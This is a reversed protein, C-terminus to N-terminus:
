TAALSASARGAVETLAAGLTVMRDRSFRVSPVAISLAAVAAGNVDRLCTGIASVGDETDQDNVAYGRRRANALHRRLSRIDVGHERDTTGYLETIVQPSLEALLARGGSTLAAPLITGRRDGVRLTQSCEVSDIFRCETSVRVSLNVSERVVACLSDLYPRLRSRLDSFHRDPALSASLQPGPVYNRNEDQVAFDRYVLMSLLRHATSRATGLETAADSVRLTGNDRLLQLLLLANDVSQLTYPPKNKM